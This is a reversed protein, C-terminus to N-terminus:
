EKFPNPFNQPRIAHTPCEYWCLGCGQCQHTNVMAPPTKSRVHIADHPCVEECRACANCLKPDVVAVHPGTDIQGLYKLATGRFENLTRYGKNKMWDRIELDIRKFISPGRLMAATLLQVGTAGAMLMSIAEAGSAIGGCGVVPIKVSRAIETVAAVAVPHLAPGSLGGSGTFYGLLPKGTDIDIVMGPGITNLACIADGGALEIRKALKEYNLVIPIKVIIPTNGAARRTQRIIKGISDMLAFGWGARASFPCGVNIEIMDADAQAFQEALFAYEEPTKCELSVIVPVGGEKAIRLERSCWEQWTHVLETECNLLGYNGLKVFRPSPNQYRDPAKHESISRTVVAGVVGTQAIEKLRAGPEGLTGSALMVPTKLRFGCLETTLDISTEM